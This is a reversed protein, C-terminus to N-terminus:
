MAPPRLGLRFLAAREPRWPDLPDEGYSTYLGFLRDATMGAQYRYTLDNDVIAKCAAVARYPAVLPGSSM